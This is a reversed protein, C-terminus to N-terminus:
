ACISVKLPVNKHWVADSFDDHIYMEQKMLMQYVDRVIYGDGANPRWLWVDSRSDQLSM